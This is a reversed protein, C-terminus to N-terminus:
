HNGESPAGEPQAEQAVWILKETEYRRRRAEADEAPPFEFSDDYLRYVSM